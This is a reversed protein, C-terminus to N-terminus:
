QAEMLMTAADANMEELSMAFGPFVKEELEEVLQQMSGKYKVEFLAKGKKFSRQIVNEVGRIENTLFAKLLRLQKSKKVGNFTLNLAAAGGVDKSWRDLVQTLLQEAASKAVLELAKTGGTVANLHSASKTTTVAALM